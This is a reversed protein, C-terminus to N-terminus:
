ELKIRPDVIGYMIDAMLNGVMSLLTFIMVLNLLMPFDQRDISVMFLQGLGPYTFVTEVILAGNIINVLDFGIYTVVPIMSNRLIHVNYIKDEPTGKARATRVYDKRSNEIMDNRLFQTYTATGVIGLVTAPLILHHLKDLWYELTGEPVTIDVSGNSPFWGLYFSFFYISYVAVCIMPVSLGTYNFVTIFHDGLSYPRRGAYKGLLYSLMYTILLSAIGLALTNAMRLKIIYTTDAMYRYSTGFDGQIFNLIWVKYLSWIIALDFDKGMGRGPMMYCLFFVILSMLFLIPIMGILRRLIYKLIQM